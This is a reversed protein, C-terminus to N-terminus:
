EKGLMVITLHVSEKPPTPKFGFKNEFKSSDFLYDRDYQYAMEKFEKLIPVFIGLIGLMWVPMVSVKSKVKLEKAFMDIWDKGTVPSRDTPLHWTQGYAEHTNGLLATACAADNTFTFNHIKVTDALWTAKKGNKLDKYVMESLLSNKPGIFDAARAILATIEGTKMAELLMNLIFARVEGKKSPPKVPTEETMGNLFDPDYMYINDFFVLKAHHKKCAGIVNNMVKPWKEKWVKLNYEFGVTLYVIESGQVAKDVQTSETLDAAFLEDDPNVKKPNRSVLRIRTTFKSLEKALPTGIVGGSGLITQLNTNM